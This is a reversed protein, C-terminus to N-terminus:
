FPCFSIMVIMSLTKRSTRWRPFLGPQWICHLRTKLRVRCKIPFIPGIVLPLSTRRFKLEAKRPKLFISTDTHLMVTVWARSINNSFDRDVIDSNDLVLISEQILRRSSSLTFGQRGNSAAYWSYAALILVTASECSWFLALTTNRCVSKDFLPSGTIM